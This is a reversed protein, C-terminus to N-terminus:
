LYMGRKFRNDEIETEVNAPNIKTSGTRIGLVLLDSIKLLNLLIAITINIILFYMKYINNNNFFIIKNKLKFVGNKYINVHYFQLNEYINLYYIYYNCIPFFM